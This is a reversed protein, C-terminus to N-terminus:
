HRSLHGRSRACVCCKSWSTHFARGPSSFFNVTM